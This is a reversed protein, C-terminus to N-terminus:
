KQVSIVWQVIEVVIRMFLIRFNRKEDEKVKTKSHVSFNTRIIYKGNFRGNANAIPAAKNFFAFDDGSGIASHNGEVNYNKSLLRFSKSTSFLSPFFDLGNFTLHIVGENQKLGKWM